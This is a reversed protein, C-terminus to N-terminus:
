TNTPDVSIVWIMLLHCRFFDSSYKRTKFHQRSAEISPNGHLLNRSWRIQLYQSAIIGHFLDWFWVFNRWITTYINSTPFCILETGIGITIRISIHIRKNRDNSMTMVNNDNGHLSLIACTVSLEYHFWNPVNEFSANSRTSEIFLYLRQNDIPHHM